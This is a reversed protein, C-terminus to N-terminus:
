VQHCRVTHTKSCWRSTKKLAFRQKETLQSLKQGKYEIEGSYPLLGILARGLTSKGSGSEGVFGLTEGQKLDLSIGKGAEFDRNQSSWIHTHTLFKERISDAQLLTPSTDCIPDKSGHPISDILM